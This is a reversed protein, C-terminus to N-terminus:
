NSRQSGVASQWNEKKADRRRLLGIDIFFQGDPTEDIDHITCINSHDLASAAQAEHIFREKTEEDRILNAQLFKLAVTRRLKTDEAEYVVGMGGAGLMEIIKYHFITKGILQEM